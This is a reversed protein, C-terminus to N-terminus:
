QEKWINGVHNMKNTDLEFHDYINIRINESDISMFSAEPYYDRVIRKANELTNTRISLIENEPCISVTYIM